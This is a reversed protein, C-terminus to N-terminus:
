LTGRLLRRVNQTAQCTAQCRQQLTTTDSPIPRHRIGPIGCTSGTAHPKIRRTQLTRLATTTGQVLINVAQQIIRYARFSVLPTGHPVHNMRVYRSPTRTTGEELRAAEGVRYEHGRSDTSTSSSQGPKNTRLLRDRDRSEDTTNITRTAVVISSGGPRENSAIVRGDGAANQARHRHHNNGQGASEESLHNRGHRELDEGEFAVGDHGVGDSLSLTSVSSSGKGDIGGSNSCTDDDNILTNNNNIADRSSGTGKPANKKSAM